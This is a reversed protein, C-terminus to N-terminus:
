RDLGPQGEIGHAPFESKSAINDIVQRRCLRGGEDHRHDVSGPALTAETSYNQYAPAATAGAPQTATGAGRAKAEVRNWGGAARYDGWEFEADPCRMKEVEFETGVPLVDSFGGSAVFGQNDLCTIKVDSAGGLSEVALRGAEM